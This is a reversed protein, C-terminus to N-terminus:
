SLPVSMTGAVGSMQVTIGNVDIVMNVLDVSISSAGPYNSLIFTEGDQTWSGSVTVRVTQGAPISVPANNLTISGLGHHETHTVVDANLSNVTLDYTFGSEVDVTVSFTRSSADYTSSVFTPSILGGSGEDNNNNGNTTNDPGIYNGGDDDGGGGGGFLGGMDSGGIIGELQPPIVLGTLNDRYMFVVAGVPAAITGISILVLIVSVVQMCAMRM